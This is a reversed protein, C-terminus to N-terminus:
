KRAAASCPDNEAGRIGQMHGLRAQRLLDAPQLGLEADRQEGAGAAPDLQGLGAAQQAGVGLPGEALGLLRDLRDAFHAVQGAAGDAEAEEAAGM